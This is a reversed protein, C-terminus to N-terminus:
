GGPIAHALAASAPPVIRDAKPILALNTCGGPRPPDPPGGGALAGAGPSQGSVLRGPNGPGGPRGLARRREALGGAGRFGTRPWGGPRPALFSRVQPRNAASRDRRVFNPHCRHALGRALRDGSDARAAGGSAAAGPRPRQPFGLPNGAAAAPRGLKPATRGGGAGLLGGMCYGLLGVRGGAQASALALADFVPGEIYDTLTFDAEEVGPAGWDMLLPRIGTGALWRLFSREETLDLIYARNILSPLCLLMPGTAGPASYDLLRINGWRAREQPDPLNRRYPHDRYRQVGTLFAGLRRRGAAEVAQIFRIPDFGKSEEAGGTRNLPIGPAPPFGGSIPPPPPMLGKLIPWGNSWLLSAPLSSSYFNWCSLLHLPLPRPGLRPLPDTRHPPPTSPM